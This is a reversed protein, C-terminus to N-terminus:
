VLMTHQEAVVISFIDFYVNHNKGVFGEILNMVFQRGLFMDKNRTGKERLHVNDKLAFGHSNALGLSQFWTSSTQRDYM